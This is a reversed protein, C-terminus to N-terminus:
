RGQMYLVRYTVVHLSSVLASETVGSSRPWVGGVPVFHACWLLIYIKGFFAFSGIKSM